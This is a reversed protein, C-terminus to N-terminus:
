GTRRLRKGGLGLDVESAGSFRVVQSRGPRLFTPRDPVGEAAPPFRCAEPGGRRRLKCRTPPAASKPGLGLATLEQDATGAAAAARELGSLQGEGGAGPAHPPRMLRWWGRGRPAREDRSCRERSGPTGLGGRAAGARRSPLPRAPEPGPCRAPAAAATAAAPLCRPRDGAAAGAQGAQVRGSTGAASARSPGAASSARGPRAEPRLNTPAGGGWAATLVMWTLDRSVTAPRGARPLWGSAFPRVGKGASEQPVGAPEAEPPPRPARSHNPSYRRPSLGSPLASPHLVRPSPSLNRKPLGLLFDSAASRPHGSRDLVAADTM